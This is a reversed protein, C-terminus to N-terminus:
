LLYTATHQLTNCHTATHQLINRHTATHHLTNCHTAIHHLTTCHTATHQLMNCHTADVGFSVNVTFICLSPFFLSYEVTYINCPTATHQLTNCHTATHQLTNCRTATHQLTNWHTATHQLTNCMHNPADVGLSVNVTCICFVPFLSWIREIKSSKYINIKVYIYINTYPLSNADDLLDISSVFSSAM